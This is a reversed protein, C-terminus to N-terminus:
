FFARSLRIGGCDIFFSLVPIDLGGGCIAVFRVGKRPTGLADSTVTGVIEGRDGSYKSKSFFVKQKFFTATQESLIRM